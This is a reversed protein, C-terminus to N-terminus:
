NSKWIRMGPIDLKQVANDAVTQSVFVGFVASGSGSMATYEAGAAEMKAKVEGVLPYSGFVSSEFDNVLEKRWIDLNNSRVLAKLDPRNKDNPTVGRYAAATAVHVPPVALVMEFPFSYASSESAHGESFSTLPVLVEGRGEAYAPTDELFFPVDSGLAAAISHLQQRDLDLGWYENLLLLTNAADSSGGGLGAGYPINKELHLAVGPLEAKEPQRQAVHDMLLRAAKVCLNSNDVPLESDSCTFVFSAAPSARLVDYWPVALFITEIDHYGDERKRLVHLGLNVKAPAKRELIM